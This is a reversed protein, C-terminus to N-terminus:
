LRVVNTAAISLIQSLFRPNNDRYQQKAREEAESPRTAWVTVTASTWGGELHVSLTVRFQFEEPPQCVDDAFITAIPLFMMGFFMVLFIFGLSSSKM